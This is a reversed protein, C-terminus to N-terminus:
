LTSKREKTYQKASYNYVFLGKSEAQIKILPIKFAFSVLRGKFHNHILKNHLKKMYKDLLFVYVGNYEGWSVHWFNGCVVKINKRYKFTRLYIVICLLPNLEIATVRLGQKLARLAITGDGAGLELLTEGKKLGLLRIAEDAQARKTPLYPAGFFVVFSFLIVVICVILVIVDM